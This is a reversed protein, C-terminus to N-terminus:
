LPWYEAHGDSAPQPVLTGCPLWSRKEFGAKDLEAAEEKAPLCRSSFFFSVPSFHSLSSKLFGLPKIFMNSIICARAVILM